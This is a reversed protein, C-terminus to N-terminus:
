RQRQAATPSDWGERPRATGKPVTPLLTPRQAQIRSRAGCFATPPLFSRDRKRNVSRRTQVVRFRFDPERRRLEMLRHTAPAPRPSPFPSAATGGQAGRGQGPWLM